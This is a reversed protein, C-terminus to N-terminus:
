RQVGYINQASKGVHVNQALPDGMMAAITQPKMRASRPRCGAFVDSFVSM